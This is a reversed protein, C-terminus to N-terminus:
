MYFSYRPHIPDGEGIHKLIDGVQDAAHLTIPVANDFQTTNWNMKTLALIERALVSPTNEGEVIELELPLPIYMGPYTEFFDVSGKTYLVHRRDDLKLLSGRLPPYTGARFLRTFSRRLALLDARDIRMSQLGSRFGRLEAPTYGSSKHLVVRAPTTKHENHYLTLASVIATHADEESLHPIRDEKEFTANGGKIIVGDGLEDFVQAISSHVREADVTRYFAIGVYCTTLSSPERLLRWPIGGAKYYLAVHFNWARTADDQLPRSQRIRTTEKSKRVKTGYTSPLVIQLPRRLPMARAKLVDHFNLRSVPRSARSQNEGEGPEQEDEQELLQLLHNPLSCIMVEAATEDALYKLEGILIAVSEEVLRDPDGINSLAVFDSTKITRVCRKEIEFSASFPSDQGFGPFAPFLNPQKSPKAPIGQRCQDLWRVIGEVSEPTGVIGLRVTKAASRSASDFPSYNKIGFRVDIHKGAAFQLEPESIFTVKM